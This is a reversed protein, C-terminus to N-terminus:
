RHGGGGGGAHGGGGGGGYGGGGYGGGGRYGGMRYGGGGFGGSSTRAAPASGNGGPYGRPVNQYGGNYPQRSGAATRNWSSGANQQAANHVVVNGGEPTARNVYGQNSGFRNWASSGNGPPQGNGGNPPQQGHYGNGGNNYQGHGNYGNNYGNNWGHGYGYGYYPAPRGYYGNYAWPARYGAYPVVWPNVYWGGYWPGVSCVVAGFNLFLSFSPGYGYAYGPYWFGAGYYVPVPAPGNYTYPTDIQNANFTNGANYGLITVSMGTTLTLGTPNIITGQHLRVNDVYGQEDDVTIAFTGDISRIRGKIQADQGQAQVQTRAYSPVDQAAAPAPAILGAALTAAALLMTLRPRNVTKM